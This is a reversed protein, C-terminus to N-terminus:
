LKTLVVDSLFPGREGLLSSHAGRRALPDSSSYNARGLSRLAGLAYSGHSSAPRAHM